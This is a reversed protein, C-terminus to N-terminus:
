IRLNSHHDVAFDIRCVLLCVFLCAYFCKRRPRANHTKSLLLRRLSFMSYNYRLCYSLSCMFIVLVDCDGADMMNHQCTSM